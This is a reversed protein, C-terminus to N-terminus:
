FPDLWPWERSYYNSFLYVTLFIFCIAILLSLHGRFFLVTSVVLGYNLKCYTHLILCAFENIKPRQDNLLHQIKKMLFYEMMPCRSTILSVLQARLRRLCQNKVYFQKMWHKYLHQNVPGNTKLPPSRQLYDPKRNFVKEFLSCMNFRLLYVLQALCVAWAAGSM